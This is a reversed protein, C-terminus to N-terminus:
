VKVGILLIDDIQEQNGKWEYFREMLINKQSNLPDRHIEKLINLLGSLMFKKGSPGGFQDAYGDSFLYFIDDSFPNFCYLSFKREAEFHSGGIPYKNGSIKQLENQHIYVLPRNAGSWYYENKHNWCLISVDMGDNTESHKDTQKLANKVELNLRYLIEDPMVIGKELVIQNLLNNGILSMFAGPVGHGTCDVAAIIKMGNKVGAWYFDGSVIDKPIYLIFTNDFEKKLFEDDPLVATQIRRAYEISSTIDRNKQALEKTREQVKEELLKKEQRIKRTRLTVFGYSGSILLSILFAYFWKTKWFPPLVKVVLVYPENGWVGESNCAKVMLTYTGGPLETYTVYRNLHPQSWGDDYGALKYSFKVKKPDNFDLAVFEATFNNQKWDLQISKLYAYSTDQLFEQGNRTIRVLSLKPGKNSVKIESPRYYTFGNPGGFYIIGTKSFHFSNINHENNMIGDEFTFNRFILNPFNDLSYYGFGKNTSYWINGSSDAITSYIFNNNLGNEENFALPKKNHQIILIGKDTGLHINNLKDLYISNIVGTPIKYLTDMHDTHYHKILKLKGNILEQFSLIFLGDGDTGLYVFKDKIKIEYITNSLGNKKSFSYAVKKTNIDFLILGDEVTGILLINKFQQLSVVTINKKNTLDYIKNDSRKYVHVGGGMSGLFYENPNLENQKIIVYEFKKLINKNILNKQNTSLDILYLNVNSSVLLKNRELEYIGYIFNLEDSIKASTHFKKFNNLYYNVGGKKSSLWINLDNDVFVSTLEDSNLSFLENSAIFKKTIGNIPNYTIFGKHTTFILYDNYRSIGTIYNEKRNEKTENFILIEFIERSHFDMKMVGNTETAVYIYGGYKYLKTFKLDKLIINNLFILDIINFQNKSFDWKWLGNSTSILFVNEEVELIDNVGNEHLGEWKKRIMKKTKIDFMLIGEPTACLLYNGHRVIKKIVNWRNTHNKIEPFYMKVSDKVLDIENLGQYTGVYLKDKYPYLSLVQSNSLFRRKYGAKYITFNIGDWKCLGDQTGFWMFGKEDQTIANVENVPLGDDSTLHRFKLEQSFYFLITINFIYILIKRM